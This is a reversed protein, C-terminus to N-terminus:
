KVLLKSGKTKILGKDWERIAYKNIRHYSIEKTIISEIQEKYVQLVLNESFIRHYYEDMVGDLLEVEYKRSYLIPNKNYKEIPKGNPGIALVMIKSKVTQGNHHLTINAGILGDM